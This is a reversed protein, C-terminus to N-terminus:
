KKRFLTMDCENFKINYNSDKYLLFDFPTIFIYPLNPQEFCTTEPELYRLYRRAFESCIDRNENHRKIKWGFKRYMAIKVLLFFDYKIHTESKDIVQGLANEIQQPAWELPTIICFDKYEKIRDSLFDPEVGGENSDIIFLRNNSEIVVGIHNYYCNDLKQITRSLLSKGHFLVLDGNSIFPRAENYKKIIDM